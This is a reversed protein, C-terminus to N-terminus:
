CCCGCYFCSCVHFYDSLSIFLLSNRLCEDPLLFYMKESYTVKTKHSGIRGATSVLDDPICHDRPHSFGKVIIECDSQRTLYINGHSDRDIKM